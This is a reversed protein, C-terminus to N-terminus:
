NPEVIGTGPSTVVDAVVELLGGGRNDRLMFLSLGLTLINFKYTSMISHLIHMM